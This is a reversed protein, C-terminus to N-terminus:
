IQNQLAARKLEKAAKDRASKGLGRMDIYSHSPHVGQVASHDVARLGARKVDGVSVVCSGITQLGYEETHIRHAEEPPVAERFTSVMRDQTSFVGSTITDARMQSPHIQRRLKEELNAIETEGAGLTSAGAPTM